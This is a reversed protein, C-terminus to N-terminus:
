ITVTLDVTAKESYIFKLEFHIDTNIWVFDSNQLGGYFEDQLQKVTKPTQSMNKLRSVPFSQAELAWLEVQWVEIFIMHLLFDLTFFPKSLEIEDQSKCNIIRVM